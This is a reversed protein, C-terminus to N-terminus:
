KWVRKKNKEEKQRFAAELDVGLKNCIDLLYIFVDAAEDELEALKTDEAFSMALRKRMARALEGVEEVFLIFRHEVPVNEFGREIVMEEIYKQYDVLTPDKKLHLNSMM